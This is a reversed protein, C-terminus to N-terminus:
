AWMRQLGQPAHCACAAPAVEPAPHARRCSAPGRSQAPPCAALRAQMHRSRARSVGAQEPDPPAPLLPAGCVVYGGAPRPCGPRIAALSSPRPKHLPAARDACSRAGSGPPAHKLGLVRAVVCPPAARQVVPAHANFRLTRPRCGVQPSRDEVLTAFFAQEAPDGRRLVRLRLYATRQRRIEDLLERVQPTPPTPPPPGPLILEPLM